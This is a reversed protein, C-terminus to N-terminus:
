RTYKKRLLRLECSSESEVLERESPVRYCFYIYASGVDALRRNVLRINGLASFAVNPTTPNIVANGLVNRIIQDLTENPLSLLGMSFSLTSHRLASSPSVRAAERFLEHLVKGATNCCNNCRCM